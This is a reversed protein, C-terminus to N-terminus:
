AELPVGMDECALTALETKEATSLDKLEKVFQGSPRKEYGPPDGATNFYRNLAANIKM